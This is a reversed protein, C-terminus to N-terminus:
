FHNNLNYLFLEVIRYSMLEIVSFVLPKGHTKIKM